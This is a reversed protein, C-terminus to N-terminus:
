PPMGVESSIPLSALGLTLPSLHEPKYTREYLFSSQFLAIFGNLLSTLEIAIELAQKDSEALDFLASTLIREGHLGSDQNAVM